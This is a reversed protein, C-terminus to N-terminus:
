GLQAVNVLEDEVTLGVGTSPACIEEAETAEELLKARRKSWWAIEEEVEASKERELLWALESTAEELQPEIRALERNVELPLTASVYVDLTRSDLQRGTLQEGGYVCGEPTSVGVGGGVTASGDAAINLGFGDPLVGRWRSPECSGYEAAGLSAIAPEGGNAEIRAVLHPYCVTGAGGLVARMTLQTGPALLTGERLLMTGRYSFRDQPGIPSLVGNVNARVDVTGSGGLTLNGAPPATLTCETHSDCRSGPAAIQAFKFHSTDSGIAFGVGKVVVASGGGLLGGSPEVATIVPVISLADATTHVSQGAATLVRVHARRAEAFAPMEAVISNPSEVTFRSAPVTGFMVARVSTFGSGTIQVQAPAGAAVKAPSLAAM